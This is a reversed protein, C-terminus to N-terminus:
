TLSNSTRTTWGNRLIVILSLPFLPEEEGELLLFFSSSEGVLLLFFSSSEEEMFTPSVDGVFLLFSSIGMLELEGLLDRLLSVSLLLLLFSLEREEFSVSLHNSCSNAFIFPTHERERGRGREDEGERWGSGGDGERGGSGGDVGDM